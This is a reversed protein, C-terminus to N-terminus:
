APPIAYRSPPISLWIMAATMPPMPIKKGPSNSIKKTYGTHSFKFCILAIFIESFPILATAPPSMAMAASIRMCFLPKEISLRATVPIVTKNNTVLFIGAGKITSKVKTSPNISQHSQQWFYVRLFCIFSLFHFFCSDTM